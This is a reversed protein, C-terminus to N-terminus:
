KNHVAAADAVVLISANYVVDAPFALCLREYIYVASYYAFVARLDRDNATSATVIIFPYLKIGTRGPVGNSNISGKAKYRKVCPKFRGTQAVRAVLCCILYSFQSWAICGTLILM